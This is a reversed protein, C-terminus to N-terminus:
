LRKELLSVAHAMQPKALPSKVLSLLSTTFLPTSPPPLPAIRPVLPLPAKRAPVRRPGYQEPTASVKQDCPPIAHLPFRTSPSSPPPVTPLFIVKNINPTSPDHTPPLPVVSHLYPAPQPFVMRSKPAAQPFRHPFKSDPDPLDASTILPLVWPQTGPSPVWTFLCPVTILLDDPTPLPSSPPPSPPSPPPPLVIPESAVLPSTLGAVDTPTPPELDFPHAPNAPTRLPIYPADRRPGIPPAPQVLGISKTTDPPSASSSFAPAHPNLPTSPPVAHKSTKAPPPRIKAHTYIKRPGVPPAM